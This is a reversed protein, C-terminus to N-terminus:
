YYFALDYRRNIVDGLNYIYIYIYIYIYLITSFGQGQVGWIIM